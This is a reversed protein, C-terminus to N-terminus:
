EENRAYFSALLCAAMLTTGGAWGLAGLRTEDRNVLFGMAISFVPDIALIVQGAAASIRGAFLAPVAMLYYPRDPFCTPSHLKGVACGHLPSALLLQQFPKSSDVVVVLLQCALHGNFRLQWETDLAALLRQWFLCRSQAAVASIEGSSYQGIAPWLLVLWAVPDRFGEWLSTPPQGQGAAQVLATGLWVASLVAM